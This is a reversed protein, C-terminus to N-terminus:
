YLSLFPNPRDSVDKCRKKLVSIIGDRKIANDLNVLFQKKGSETSLNHKDFVDPQTNKIFSFLREEDIAYKKNFTLKIEEPKIYVYGNSSLHNIIEYELAEEPKLSRNM